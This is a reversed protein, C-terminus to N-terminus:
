ITPRYTEASFFLDSEISGEACMLNTADLLIEGEAGLEGMLRDVADCLAEAKITKAELSRVKSELDKIKLAQAPILESEFLDHNDSM